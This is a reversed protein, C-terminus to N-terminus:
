FTKNKDNQKFIFFSQMEAVIFRALQHMVEALLFTDCRWKHGLVPVSWLDADLSIIDAAAHIGRFAKSKKSALAM